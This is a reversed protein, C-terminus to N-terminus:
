VAANDLHMVGLLPDDELTLTIQQRAERNRTIWDGRYVDGTSPETQINDGTVYDLLRRAELIERVRYKWLMFNGGDNALKPISAFLRGTPDASTAMTTSPTPLASSPVATPVATICIWVLIVTLILTQAMVKLYSRRLWSLEPAWFSYSFKILPPPSPPVNTRHSIPAQIKAPGYLDYAIAQPMSVSAPKSLVDRIDHLRRDFRFIVYSPKLLKHRASCGTRSHAGCDKPNSLPLIMAKRSRSRHSPVHHKRLQDVFPQRPPNHKEVHSTAPAGLEHHTFRNFVAEVHSKIVRGPFGVENRPHSPNDPFSSQRNLKKVHGGVVSSRGGIKDPDRFSNGKKAARNTPGSM